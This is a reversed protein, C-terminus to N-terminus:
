SRINLLISIKFLVYVKEKKLIKLLRIIKIKKTPRNLEKVNLLIVSRTQKLNVM